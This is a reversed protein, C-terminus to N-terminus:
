KSIHDINPKKNEKFTLPSDTLYFCVQRGVHTFLVFFLMTNFFISYVKLFNINQNEVQGLKKLYSRKLKLKNKQVGKKLTNWFFYVLFPFNLVKGPKDNVRQVGRQATPDPSIPPPAGQHRGVHTSLACFLVTKVFILYSRGSSKIKSKPNM